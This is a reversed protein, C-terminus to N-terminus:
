GVVINVLKGKVVIVKRVTKGELDAKIRESALALSKMTKEDADAPVVMKDRVKGNIQAVIEVEDAKAVEPDYSPGPPKSRSAPKGLTEWLEDAIHPTM